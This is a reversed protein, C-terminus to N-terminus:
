RAASGALPCVSPCCVPVPCLRLAAACCCLLVALSQLRLLSQCFPRCDLLTLCGPPSSVSHLSHTISHTLPPLFIIRVATSGCHVNVDREYKKQKKQRQRNCEDVVLGAAASGAAACQRSSRSDAYMMRCRMEDLRECRMELPNKDNNTLQM